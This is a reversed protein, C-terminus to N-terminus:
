WFAFSFVGCVARMACSWASALTICAQQLVVRLDVLLEDLVLRELAETLSMTYANVAWGSQCDEPPEVDVGFIGGRRPTM